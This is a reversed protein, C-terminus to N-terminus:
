TISTSTKINFWNGGGLDVMSIPEVDFSAGTYSLAVLNGDVTTATTAASFLNGTNQTTASNSPTWASLVSDALGMIPTFWSYVTTASNGSFTSVLGNQLSTVGSNSPDPGTPLQSFPVGFSTAGSLATNTKINQKVQRNDSFDLKTIFPM